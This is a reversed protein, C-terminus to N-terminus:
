RRGRDREKEEEAARGSHREEEGGETRDSLYTDALIAVCCSSVSFCPIIPQPLFFCM